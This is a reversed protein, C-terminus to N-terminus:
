LKLFQSFMQGRDEYHYIWAAWARCQNEIPGSRKAMLEQLSELQGTIKFEERIDLNFRFLDGM